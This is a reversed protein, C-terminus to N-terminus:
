ENKIFNNLNIPQSKVELSNKLKEFDESFQGRLIPNYLIAAPHFMPMVRYNKNKIEITHIKGHLVGVGKIKSMDKINFKSLIFKTSFNGLTVIIKPEIIEIQKILYPTHEKIEEEQPDRNNPPRYKLINAIYCKELNLNIKKLMKDLELGARGVFPIGKIDEERGPAEGIFLIESNSNGKGFVLNTATKSLNDNLNEKTFKELNELEDEKSM